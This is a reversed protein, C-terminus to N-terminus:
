KGLKADLEEQTYDIQEGKLEPDYPPMPFNVLWAEEDGINELGTPIHPPIYLRQPHEASLIYEIRRGDIYLIIKMKGKVCMYRSSRVTHEHYGKFTGPKAATLYATTKRGDKLLEILFGNEKKTSVDFTKVKKAFEVRVKEVPKKNDMLGSNKIEQKIEGINM